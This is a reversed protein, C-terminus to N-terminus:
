QVRSSQWMASPDFHSQDVRSSRVPFEIVHLHQSSRRKTGIVVRTQSSMSSKRIFHYSLKVGDYKYGSSHRGKTKMMRNSLLFLKRKKNTEAVPSSRRRCDDAAAFQIFCTELLESVKRLLNRIIQTEANVVLKWTFVVPFSVRMRIVAFETPEVDTPGELFPETLLEDDTIEFCLLKTSGDELQYVSARVCVWLLDDANDLILADRLILGTRGWRSDGGDVFSLRAFPAANTMSELHYVLDQWLRHRQSRFSKVSVTSSISFLYSFLARGKTEYNEVRLKSSEVQVKSVLTSTCRQKLTHTARMGSGDVPQGCWKRASKKTTPIYYVSCSLGCVNVNKTKEPTTESLLVPFHHNCLHHWHNGKKTGCFVLRRPAFQSPPNQTLLCSLLTMVFDPGQTDNDFCFQLINDDFLVDQFPHPLLRVVEFSAHPTWPFLLSRARHRVMSIFEAILVDSHCDTLACRCALRKGSLARFCLPFDSRCRVHNAGLVQGRRTRFRGICLLDSVAATFTRSCAWTCFEKSLQHAASDTTSSSLTWWM